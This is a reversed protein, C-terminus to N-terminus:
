HKIRLRVAGIEVLDGPRLIRSTVKKSNVMVGNTSNLDQVAFFGDKRQRIEAHHASVTDDDLRIDNDEARGIRCLTSRITFVYEGVAGTQEHVLWALAPTTDKSPRRGFPWLASLPKKM